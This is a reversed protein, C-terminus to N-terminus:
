IREVRLGELSPVAAAAEASAEVLSNVSFIKLPYGRAVAMEKFAKKETAITSRVSTRM